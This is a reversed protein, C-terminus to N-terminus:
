RTASAERRWLERLLAEFRRAYAPGDCLPSQRVRERLSSRLTTLRARDAALAVAKTIYHQRDSAILEELGIASLLSVGVRSAHTSGGVTLVPVGMWLAECTTTTGAYPFPDLALDVRSYQGLHDAYSKAQEIAEVRDLAIGHDAFRRQLAARVAPDTLQVAKLLLRSNPVANLIKSWAEVVHDTIKLLTNFSGFTIPAGPALTCPAAAVQPADARPTYCLFCPDLRVLNETCYRDADAGSAALPPASDASPDTISDVIRHNISRLGTTNPYGIYSATVLAPHHPFVALRQGETHGSLEIFIDIQDDRAQQAIQAHTLATVDRWGDALARLEATTADPKSDPKTDTSALTSYGWIELVSPDRHRFIPDAFFAVSHTRFDPSLLAVRLRKRPDRPRPGPKVAEPAQPPQADVFAGIQRHAEFITPLDFEDLYNMAFAVARLSNEHQPHRELTRQAVDLGERLRAARFLDALTKEVLGLQDPYLALARLDTDAADSYRGQTVLTTSLGILADFFTPDAVLAREFLAVAETNKGTLSLLSAHTSLVDARAPARAAARAAFYEAQPYQKLAVLTVAMAHVLDPDAPARRLEAQLTLRAHEYRGQNLAERVASLTHQLRSV